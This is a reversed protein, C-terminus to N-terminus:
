NAGDHAVQDRNIKPTDISSKAGDVSSKASADVVSPKKSGVNGDGENEVKEENEDKGTAKSGDSAVNGDCDATGGVSKSSSAGRNVNDAGVSEASSSPLLIPFTDDYDSPNDVVNSNDAGNNNSSHDDRLGAASIRGGTSSAASIRGGDVSSTKKANNDNDWVSKRKSGATNEDRNNDGM